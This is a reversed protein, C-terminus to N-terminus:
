LTQGPLGGEPKAAYFTGGSTHARVLQYNYEPQLQGLRLTNRSVQPEGPKRLGLRKVMARNEKM